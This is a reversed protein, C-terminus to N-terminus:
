FYVFTRVLMRVFLIARVFSHHIAQWYEVTKYSAVASVANYGIIHDYMAAAAAAAVVVVVVKVSRRREIDSSEEPAVQAVGRV